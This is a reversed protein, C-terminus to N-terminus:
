GRERALTQAPDDGYDIIRVYDLLDWDVFPRVVWHGASDAEVIGVPLGARFIGGDGSTLVLAGPVPPADSAFFELRPSPGNTGALIARRRNPNYRGLVRLLGVPKIPLAMRRWPDCIANLPASM